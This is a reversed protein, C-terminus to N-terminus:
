ATDPAKFNKVDVVVKVFVSDDRIFRHGTKLLMDGSAFMPCGTSINMEDTPRHFSPSTVDPSFTQMIDADRTGEQSLLVFTIKQRFPWPLLSDFEGQMITFYLSIYRGYGMGDGNLYIRLCMKYGCQSTYFPPSYFSPVKGIIAEHMRQHINSIKWVMTGATMRVEQLEQRMSIDSILEGHRTVTSCCMVCVCLAQVSRIM